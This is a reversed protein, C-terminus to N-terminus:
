QSAGTACKAHTDKAYELLQVAYKILLSAVIIAILINGAMFLTLSKGQIPPLFGLVFSFMLAGVILSFFGAQNGCAIIKEDREDRIDGARRVVFSAVIMAAMMTWSDIALYNGKGVHIDIGPYTLTAVLHGFLLATGVAFFRLTREPAGPELGTTKELVKWRRRAM